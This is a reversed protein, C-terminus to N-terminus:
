TLGGDRVEAELPEKVVSPRVQEMRRLHPAICGRACVRVRVRVRVCVCVCACVWVYVGVGVGVWGCGGVWVRSFSSM